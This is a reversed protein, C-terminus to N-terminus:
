STNRNKTVSTCEHINFGLVNRRNILNTAIRGVVSRCKLLNTVVLLYLIIMSRNLFISLSFFFL